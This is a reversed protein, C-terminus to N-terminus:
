QLRLQVAGTGFSITDGVPAVRAASLPGYALMNGDQDFIAAYSVQAWDSGSAAGFVVPASNTISSVGGSANVSGFTISQRAYGGSPESVGSGDANPAATLLGIKLSIPATPFSTGKIWNM